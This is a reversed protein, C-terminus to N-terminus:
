NAMISDFIKEWQNVVMDVSFQQSKLFANYSLERRKEENDMLDELRNGYMALNHAPVLVGDQGDTIREAIGVNDFTVPICGYTMGEVLAMGFGESESSLCIFSAKRYYDALKRQHGEFFVNQLNYREVYAKMEQLQDGDGVFVLRWDNHESYLKKWIKLLRIPKKIVSDMRGVYLITKEKHITSFPEQEIGSPNIVTFTNAKIPSIRKEFSGCDRDSLLLVAASGSALVRYHAKLGKELIYKKYSLYIPYSCIKLIWKAVGFLSKECRLMRSYSMDTKVLGDESNHIVSITKALRLANNMVPAWGQQNIVIDIKKDCIFQKYAEINVSKRFGGEEPLITLEVPYNYPCSSPDPATECLYWVNYGRLIFEKALIDTVREVGGLYPNFPYRGVFVINLM